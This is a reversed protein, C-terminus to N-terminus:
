RFERTGTEAAAVTGFFLREIERNEENCNDSNTTRKEKKVNNREKSKPKWSDRIETERKGSRRSNAIKRVNERRELLLYIKIPFLWSRFKREITM